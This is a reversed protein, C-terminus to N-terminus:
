RRERNISYKIPTAFSLRSESPVPSKLIGIIWVGTKALPTIQFILWNTSCEQWSSTVKEKKKQEKLEEPTEHNYQTKIEDQSTKYHKEM